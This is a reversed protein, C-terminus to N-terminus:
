VKPRIISIIAIKNEEIQKLLNMKVNTCIIQSKLTGCRGSMDGKLCIRLIEFFVYSRWIQGDKLRQRETRGDTLAKAHFLEAGVPRIKM